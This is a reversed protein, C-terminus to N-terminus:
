GPWPQGYARGIECRAVPEGEIVVGLSRRLRAGVAGLFRTRGAIMRARTIPALWDRAEAASRGDM